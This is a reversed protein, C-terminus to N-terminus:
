KNGRASPLNEDRQYVVATTVSALMRPISRKDQFDFNVGFWTAGITRLSALEVSFSPDGKLLKISLVVNCVSFFHERNAIAIRRNRHNDLVPAEFLDAPFATASGNM